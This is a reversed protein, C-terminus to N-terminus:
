AQSQLLGCVGRRYTEARTIGQRRCQDLCRHDAGQTGGPTRRALQEQHDQGRRLRRAMKGRRRVGQAREQPRRRPGDPVPELLSDRPFSVAQGLPRIRARKEPSRDLGVWIRRYGHQLDFGRMERLLKFRDQPFMINFHIVKPRRLRSYIDCIYMNWKSLLVRAAEVVDHAMLNHWGGITMEESEPEASEAITGVGVRSASGLVRSIRMDNQM